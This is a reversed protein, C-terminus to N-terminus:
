GKNHPRGARGYKSARGKRAMDAMNDNHTGLFLHDPNVCPPNDCRHLAQLGDPIKGFALEYAARHAGTDKGNIKLRGYGKNNRRPFNWCGAVGAFPEVLEARLDRERRARKRAAGVIACARSCYIRRRTEQPTAPLYPAGCEGCEKFAEKSSAARALEQLRKCPKCIWRRNRAQEPTPEFVGRCARCMM